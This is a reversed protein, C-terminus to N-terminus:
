LSANRDWNSKIVDIIQCHVDDFTIKNDVLKWQRHFFTQTISSDEIWEPFHCDFHNQVINSISKNTKNMRQIKFGLSKHKWEFCALQYPSRKVHIMFESIEM